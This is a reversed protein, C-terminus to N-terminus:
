RSTDVAGNLGGLTAHGLQYSCVVLWAPAWLRSKAHCLLLGPAGQQDGQQQSVLLGQTVQPPVGPKLGCLQSGSWPGHRAGGEDQWVWTPAKLDLVEDTATLCHHYPSLPSPCSLTPVQCASVQQQESHAAVAYM